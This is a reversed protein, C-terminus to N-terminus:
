RSALTVCRKPWLKGGLLWSANEYVKELFEAGLTNPM